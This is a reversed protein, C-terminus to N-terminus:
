RLDEILHWCGKKFEFIYAGPSGTKRILEVGDGGDPVDRFEGGTWDLRWKTPSLQKREIDVYKYGDNDNVSRADVWYHDRMALRFQGQYDSKAVKKSEALQLRVDAADSPGHVPIIEPVLAGMSVEFDTFTMQVAQNEIFLEIFENFGDAKCGHQITASVMEWDPIADKYPDTHPADFQAQTPAALTFSALSLAALFRTAIM